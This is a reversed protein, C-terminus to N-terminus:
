KPPDGKYEGDELYQAFYHKAEREAEEKDPDYVAWLHNRCSIRYGNRTKRRVTWKNFLKEM